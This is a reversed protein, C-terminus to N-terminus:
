NPVIIYYLLTYYNRHLNLLKPLYTGICLQKCAYAVIIMGRGFSPRTRSAHIYYIEDDSYPGM